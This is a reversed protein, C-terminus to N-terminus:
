IKNKKETNQKGLLMLLKFTVADDFARLDLGVSKQIKDLRYVLTNRHIYLQRATESLNLSNEFLKEITYLMEDNFLKSNPRNFLIQHFSNATEPPITSLFRELVLKRYNFIQKKSHFIRGDTIALKAEKLSECLHAVDHKVDGIGIYATSGTESLLTNSLAEAYQDLDDLECREDIAKVLAVAHRGVECVYDQSDEDFLNRVINVVDESQVDSFHLYIVARDKEIAINEANAISEMEGADIEGDLIMRISSDASDREGEDRLIVNILQICLRACSKVEENCGELCIYLPQASDTGILTFAGNVFPVIPNAVLEEPLNFQNNKSEPLIVQGNYDLLMVPMSLQSFVISIKALIHQNLYM